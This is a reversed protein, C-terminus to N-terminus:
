EDGYLEFEWPQKQGPGGESLWIRRLRCTAYVRVYTIHSYSGSPLRARATNSIDNMDDDDNDMRGSLAVSSFHPLFTPLHLNITSWATLPRSSPPPFSLPLHLLPLSDSSSTDSIKLHPEKQFTSMRLVGRRGNQDAIGIEFSWLKGLNKVQLHLWPHKLSLEKSVNDLRPCQIFTKTLNPAQIHLVTQNLHYGEENDDGPNFSQVLVCSEPLPPQSSRDNLLHIFSDSPLSGDCVSSFLYLPASGTSSFLCAVGPQVSNAFM